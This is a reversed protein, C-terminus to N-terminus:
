WCNASVALTSRSRPLNPAVQQGDDLVTITPLAELSALKKLLM